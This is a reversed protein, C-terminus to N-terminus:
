KGAGSLPTANHTPISSGSATSASSPAKWEAMKDLERATKDIKFAAQKQDWSFEKLPMAVHRGGLGLLGGVRVVLRDIKKDDPRMLVTSIDGIKKGDGGIVSTGEIKSVDEQKLPNQVVVRTSSPAAATAGPRPGMPSTAPSQAQASATLLALASVAAISIARM